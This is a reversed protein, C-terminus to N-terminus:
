SIWCGKNFIVIIKLLQQHYCMSIVHLLVNMIITDCQSQLPKLFFGKIWENM